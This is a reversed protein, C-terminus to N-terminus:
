CQLSYTHLQETNELIGNQEMFYHGGQCTTSAHLAAFKLPNSFNWKSNILLYLVLAGSFSTDLFYNGLSTHPQLM